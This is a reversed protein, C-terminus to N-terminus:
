KEWPKELEKKIDTAITQVEKQADEAIRLDVVGEFAERTGTWIFQTIMAQPLIFRRQEPCVSSNYDYWLACDDLLSIYWDPLPNEMVIEDSSGQKKNIPKGRWESPIHFEPSSDVYRRSIENMVVGVTHKALQARIAVPCKIRFSFWQHREPPEDFYIDHDEGDFEISQMMLPLSSKIMEFLTQSKIFKALKLLGWAGSTILWRDGSKHTNIAAILTKDQIIADSRIVSAPISVCAMPHACPTWHNHKVLYNILRGDGEQSENQWKDFSVRAANVIMLDNFTNQIRKAEM